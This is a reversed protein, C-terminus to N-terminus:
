CIKPLFIIKLNFSISLLSLFWISNFKHLSSLLLSTTFCLDSEQGPYHTLAPGLPRPTPSGAGPSSLLLASRVRSLCHQLAAWMSPSCFLCNQGKAAAVLLPGPDVGRRPLASLATLSFLVSMVRTCVWLKSNASGLM